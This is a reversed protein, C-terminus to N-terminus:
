ATHGASPSSSAPFSRAAFIPVTQSSSTKTGNRRNSPAIRFTANTRQYLSQIRKIVDNQKKRFEHYIGNPSNASLISEAFTNKKQCLLDLDVELPICGGHNPSKTNTTNGTSPIPRMRWMTIVLISILNVIMPARRVGFYTLTFLSTVQHFFISRDGFRQNPLGRESSNRHM